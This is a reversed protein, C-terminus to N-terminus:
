IHELESRRHKEEGHRSNVYLSSVGDDTLCLIIHNPIILGTQPTVSMSALETANDFVCSAFISVGNLSIGLHAVKGIPYKKIVLIKGCSYYPTLMFLLIIVLFRVIFGTGYVGAAQGESDEGAEIHTFSFTIHGNSHITM